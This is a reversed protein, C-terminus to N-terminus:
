KKRGRGKSAEKAIEEVQAAPLALADVVEDAANTTEEIMVAEDDEGTVTVMKRDNLRSAYTKAYGMEYFAKGDSAIIISKLDPNNKFFRKATETIEKKTM